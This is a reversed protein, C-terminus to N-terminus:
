RLLKQALYKKQRMGHLESFFIPVCGDRMDITQCTGVFRSCRRCCIHNFFLRKLEHRFTRYVVSFAIVNMFSNSNALWMFFFRLKGPVHFGDIFSFLLVGVVYPGWFLFFILSTILLLKIASKGQHRPMSSRCNVKNLCQKRMVVTRIIRMNTFVLVCGSLIPYYFTEMICFWKYEWFLGCMNEDADFQYYIFDPKTLTPTAFSGLSFIWLCAIVIHAKRPSRWRTYTMPKCIALYRDISVMAISWISIACSTGHVIGSIQCWVPGYPWYEMVAPYITPLCSVLGVCLDSFSLNLLFIKSIKPVHCKRSLIYFNLLNSVIIFTSVTSATVIRAYYYVNDGIDNSM